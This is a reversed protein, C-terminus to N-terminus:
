SIAHLYLYYFAFNLIYIVEPYFITEDMHTIVFLLVLIQFFLSSSLIINSDTLYCHRIMFCLIATFVFFAFVFHMTHTENICILGYLGILLICICVQSYRDNREWEYLLTGLGMLGMFFLISDKCTEDCIINSVSPNSQYQYCVMLIPLLYCGIMFSLLANKNM